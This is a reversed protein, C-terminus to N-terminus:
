THDLDSYSLSSLEALEKILSKENFEFESLDCESEESSSLDGDAASIKPSLSRPSENGLYFDDIIDQDIVLKEIKEEMQPISSSQQCTEKATRKNMNRRRRRKQNRNLSNFETDSM